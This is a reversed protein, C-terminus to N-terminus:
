FSVRVGFQFLGAQTWMVPQPEDVVDAGINLNYKQVIQNNTANYMNLVLTAKVTESVKIPKELGLHLMWLTPLREDGSKYGDRYVFVRGQSLYLVRRLPQPFGERVTLFASLDIGLPLKFIGTLKFMWRSNVWIDSLGSGASVPAVEGGNFFDFNNMDLTEEEFRHRKWDQFTFSLNLMWNNSLRKNMQLQIAKYMDYAKELNYYQYGIPTEIQQYIPVTTGGVEVTGTQEYNAKTELSGNAMMGRRVPVMEGRSNVDTALRHRKRLFGTVSVMLDDTLEKEFTLILEDM